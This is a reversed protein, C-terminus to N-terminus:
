WLWRGNAMFKGCGDAMPWFNAVQCHRFKTVDNKCNYSKQCSAFGQNLQQLVKKDILIPKSYFGLILSFNM